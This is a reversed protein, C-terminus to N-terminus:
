SQSLYLFFTIIGMYFEMENELIVFAIYFLKKLHRMVNLPTTEM